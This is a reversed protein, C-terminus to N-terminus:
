NWSDREEHIYKDVTIGKWIEAGLGKMYKTFNSPKPFVTINGTKEDIEWILIDGEKLRKQKRIENPIVTQYKKGVKSQYIM